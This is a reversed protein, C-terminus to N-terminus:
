RRPSDPADTLSREGRDDYTAWNRARRDSYGSTQAAVQERAFLFTRRTRCLDVDDRPTQPTRAPNM